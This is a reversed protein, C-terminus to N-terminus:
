QNCGPGTPESTAGPSGAPIGTSISLTIPDTKAAAANAAPNSSVVTCKDPGPLPGPSTTSAVWVVQVNGLNFGSGSILQNATHRDKGIVNPMTTALSGDSEYVTVTAGVPTKTGAAPDTAAVQGQPLASAIPGGDAFVYNLSELLAKANEPTQGIVSPVTSSQGGLMAASAAPFAGGRYAPVANFAAMLPRIVNFRANNAYNQRTTPNSLKRLSQHGQINGTWVATGIKTTTEMIWLHDADPSTGTKGGIPVGDRPNGATSTGGTTSGIMANAVGAAVEPTLAQNCTQPQGGLDKGAPSVIKDVIIPDCHLGGAGITAVAGAMTLPAIENTGLIAAPNVTLPKGDARHAGMSMATDRISCLDSREAMNMFANNVSGILGARVTMISGRSNGDNQLKFDAGAVASPDCPATFSSMKYTQPGTGNVLDNLGHGNQLWNALDFVKYTSGTPFGTSGGYPFDTSFNVATTTPGGGDQTNNFDKNQAMVLIRGTGAEVSDVAGGLQFRSESAPVQVDMNSQAVDQLDLNITTYVSYGGQNWNSIRQDKTAGLATLTPVLKTVYDCAFKADRANLCGNSPASLKVIDELKTAVAEDYQKKTIKKTDLMAKLIQNRRVTNAPYYKPDSLKQLNPQQVIAILSAAQALTVDKAHVSFYQMAASEIGYTNGGFGVINLYGLLIQKKTYKKDLGIALKMEKLKRDITTQTAEKYAAKQKALTPQELANQMLINKVLQMDLTSSGSQVEGSTSNQVLARAISSVDVGGHDYFRRDEGAVIAERIFPSVENWTVEKRNQKYVTAIEVPAGGRNAYITNQQSQEGIQIFDPLNEFVGITNNAAVSTVALAPTVMATVLVGALVSFGLFGALGGLVGSPKLKQASM